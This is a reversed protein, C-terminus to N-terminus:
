RTDVKLVQDFYGPSYSLTIQHFEENRLTVRELNGRIIAKEWGEFQLRFERVFSVVRVVERADMDRNIKNLRVPYISPLFGGEDGSIVEGTAEVRGLEEIRETEEYEDQIEEWRRVPELEVNVPRGLGESNYTAFILKRRQYIGYEEKSYETFNWHHPPDSPTWRDFENRLAGEEYLNVLTSRLEELERIGYVVLDIDSYNPNHFGHALSGFVGFDRIALNSADVITDIVERAAEILPDGESDLLEKLREDPRTVSSLQEARVGVMMRGLPSHLIKYPPIRCSAFKLGGDLYFKYYKTPLGDRLAKPDDTEYVDESAYELDCFCSEKPHDYGFTRFILGDPTVPSDRDRFRLVDVTSLDNGM